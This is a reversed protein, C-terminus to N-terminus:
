DLSRSSEQKYHGPTGECALLRKAERLACLDRRHLTSGRPDPKYTELTNIADDISMWEVARIHGNEEETRNTPVERIARALFYYVINKQKLNNYQDIVCGLERIIESVLGLEEAIERVAGAEATEGPELGGGPILYCDMILGSAMPGQCRLLAIRQHHDFVIGRAAFRERDIGQYPYVDQRFEGIVKM